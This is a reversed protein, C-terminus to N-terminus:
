RVARRAKIEVRFPITVTPGKKDPLSPVYSIEAILASMVAGGLTKDTALEDSFADLLLFAEDRVAKFSGNGRYTSAQCAISYHEMDRGLSLGGLTQTDDVAEGAHGAVYGVLLQVRPAAAASTDIAQADPTGTAASFAAVARQAVAYLGDIAAPITSATSM